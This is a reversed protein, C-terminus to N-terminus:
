AMSFDRLRYCSDLAFSADQVAQARKNKQKFVIRINITEVWLDDRGMEYLAMGSVMRHLGNVNM